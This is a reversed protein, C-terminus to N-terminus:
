AAPRTATPPDSDLQRGNGQALEVGSQTLRCQKRDAVAMLRRIAQDLLRHVGREVFSEGLGLLSEQLPEFLYRKCAQRLFKGSPARMLVILLSLEHMVVHM